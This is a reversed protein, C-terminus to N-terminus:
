AEVLQQQHQQTPKWIEIMQAATPQRVFFSMQQGGEIGFSFMWFDIAIPLKLRGLGISFKDDIRIQEGGAKPYGVLGAPQDGNNNASFYAWLIGLLYGTETYNVVLPDLRTLKENKVGRRCEEEHEDPYIAHRLQDTAERNLMVGNWFSNETIIAYARLTEQYVYSDTIDVLFPRKMDRYRNYFAVLEQYLYYARELQFSPIGDFHARALGKLSSGDINAKPYHKEILEASQLHTGMSVSGVLQGVHDVDKLGKIDTLRIGGKVYNYERAADVRRELDEMYAHRSDPRQVAAMRNELALRHMRRAFTEAQNMEQLAPAVVAHVATQHNKTYFNYKNEQM